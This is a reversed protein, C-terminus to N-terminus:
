CSDRIMKKKREHNMAVYWDRKRVENWMVICPENKKKKKQEFNNTVSLPEHIVKTMDINLTLVTEDESPFLPIDLIDSEDNRM